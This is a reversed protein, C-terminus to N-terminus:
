FVYATGNAPHIISSPCTSMKRSRTIPHILFSTAPIAIPRDPEAILVQEARRSRRGSHLMSNPLRHPLVAANGSHGPRRRSVCRALWCTPLRAGGVREPVPWGLNLRAPSGQRGISAYANVCWQIVQSVAGRRHCQWPVTTKRRQQSSGRRVVSCFRRCPPVRSM